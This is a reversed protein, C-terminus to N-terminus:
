KLIVFRSTISNSEVFYVGNTFVPDELSVIIVSSDMKLEKVIEGTYRRIYLTSNPLNKETEIAIYDASPNPSIKIEHNSAFFSTSDPEFVEERKLSNNVLRKNL